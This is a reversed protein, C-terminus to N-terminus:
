LPEMSLIQSCVTGFTENKLDMLFQHIKETEKEKAYKTAAACTCDPIESYDDLKDWLCNLWIYYDVVM